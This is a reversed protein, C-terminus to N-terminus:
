KAILKTLAVIRDGELGALRIAQLITRSHEPAVRFDHGVELHKAIASGQAGLRFLEARLRLVETDSLSSSGESTIFTKPM